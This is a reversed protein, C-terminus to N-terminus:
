RIQEHVLTLIRQATQAPADVGQETLVVTETKEDGVARLSVIFRTGSEVDVADKSWPNLKALWSKNQTGQERSPDNYRVYYRGLSRDLDEV